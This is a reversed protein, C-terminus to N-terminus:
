TKKEYQKEKMGLGCGSTFGIAYELENICINPKIYILLMRIIVGVSCLVVIELIELIEIRSLKNSV